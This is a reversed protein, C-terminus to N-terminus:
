RQGKSMDHIAEIAQWGAPTPYYQGRDDTRRIWKKRVFADLVNKADAGIYEAVDNYSFSRNHALTGLALLVRDVHSPNSRTNKPHIVTYPEIFGDDYGVFVIVSTEAQDAVRQAWKLVSNKDGEVGEPGGPDRPDDAFYVM